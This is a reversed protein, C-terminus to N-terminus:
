KLEDLKARATKNGPDIILVRKYEGVARGIFGAKEYAEAAKLRVSIDDPMAAIAKEMVVLAKDYLKKEAYYKHARYFLAPSPEKENKIYNLSNLYEEEAMKDQQTSNLYDAFDM